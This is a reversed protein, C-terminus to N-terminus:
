RRVLKRETLIKGQSYITLIYTGSENPLIVSFERGSYVEAEKILQGSESFIRYSLAPHEKDLELNVVGQSPNPFVIISKKNPNESLNLEVKVTDYVIITDYVSVTDYVPITDFIRTTDYIPITDYIHKICTGSDCLEDKYLNSIESASLACKFIRIDDIKGQFHQINYRAGITFYPVGAYYAAQNNLSASDIPNGNFYFVAKSNTRTVALHYWKNLVPMSGVAGNKVTRNVDYTSFAFGYLSQWSSSVLNLMQDGQVSGNRTGGISLICQSTNTSPNKQPYVWLSYTYENIKFSDPNVEIYDDVGDFYYAKNSGLQYRNSTPMAGKVIGHHGNGSGDQASGNLCYRGIESCKQSYVM